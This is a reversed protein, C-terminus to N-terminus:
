LLFYKCDTRGTLSNFSKRLRFYFAFNKNACVSLDVFSTLQFNFVNLDQSESHDTLLSVQVVM